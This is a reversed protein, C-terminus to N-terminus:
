EKGDRAAAFLGRLQDRQFVAARVLLLFGDHQDALPDGEVRPPMESLGPASISSIFYSMLPAALTSPVICAMASIFRLSFTTPTIGAQSFRGLPLAVLGPSM